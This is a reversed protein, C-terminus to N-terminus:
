VQSTIKYKKMLGYKKLLRYCKKLEKEAQFIGKTGVSILKGSAFVSVRGIM